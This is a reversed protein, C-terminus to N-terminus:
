GTFSNVHAPLRDQTVSQQPLLTERLATERQCADRAPTKPWRARGAGARVGPPVPGCAFPEPGSSSGGSIAPAAALTRLLM